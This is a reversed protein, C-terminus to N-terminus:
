NKLADWVFLPTKAGNILNTMRAQWLEPIAHNMNWGQTSTFVDVVFTDCRYVGRTALVGPYAPQAVTAYGTLTYSAGILYIQEARAAIAMRASIGDYYNRGNYYDCYGSFCYYILHNPVNPRATTWPASTTKFSYWSVYRVANSAGSVVEAINSGTWVGIHGTFGLGFYDLNRAPVDGVNSPADDAVADAGIHWLPQLGSSYVVLNGDDQVNLFAGPNGSTSTWWLPFGNSYEVLNGDTQMTMNTGFRYTAFRVLLDSTRYMVFNGDGQM